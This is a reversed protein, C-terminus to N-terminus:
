ESRVITARHEVPFAVSRAIFCMAHARDHLAAAAAADSNATVTVRPHLTARVFRGAGDAEEVMEGEAADEYATVVVGAEACLSLYWLQHCACLSALLLEEPNWRAADGRFAPDSSGPLDPKGAARIVHAREYGRHTATGTGTNGTWALTVAYRHLRQGMEVGKFPIAAPVAGARTSYTREGAAAIISGEGM